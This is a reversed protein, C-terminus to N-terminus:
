KNNKWPRFFWDTRNREISLKASDFMDHIFYYEDNTLYHIGCHSCYFAVAHYKVDYIIFNDRIKLANVYDDFTKIEINAIPIFTHKFCKSLKREDYCKIHKSM